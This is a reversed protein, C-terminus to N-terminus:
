QEGETQYRPASAIRTINKMFTLNIDDGSRGNRHKAVLMKVLEVDSSTEEEGDDDEDGKSRDKYLLLVNDADQEISGSERLDALRPKRKKDKELERNLQALVIVPVNLEKALSKCGNSIDAIEQQRNQARRNTSHLLQLYDIVFLKIGYQQWMRRAKARLQLISLGATDDIHLKSKAIATSATTLPAFDGEKLDGDRINSLGVQSRAALTRMVLSEATMELSFFGVPLGSNIAVHEAINCALATKGCSPRAAIITMEGGHLGGTLRDLDVFGTGIGALQGQRAHNEEIKNIVRKVIEKIDTQNDLVREDSVALVASEVDDLLQEVDGEHEYVRAIASSCATIMERLLYKERIINMYYTLNASSPVADQLAALYTVGGVSDLQNSDKLKRQVTILDIPDQDDYMQVLLEYLRAHRLDYFMSGGRRFKEVCIGLSEVPSLLCCGIVGQEAPEDHPPLRDIKSLDIARPAPQRKSASIDPSENL